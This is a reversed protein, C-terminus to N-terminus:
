MKKWNQARYGNTGQLPNEGSLESIIDTSNVVYMNFDIIKSDWNDDTM